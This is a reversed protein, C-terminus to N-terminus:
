LELRGQWSGYYCVFNTATKCTAQAACSETQKCYQAMQNFATCSWWTIYRCRVTPTHTMRPSRTILPCAITAQGGQAIAYCLEEHRCCMAQLCITRSISSMEAADCGVAFRNYYQLALAPGLDDNSKRFSRHFM